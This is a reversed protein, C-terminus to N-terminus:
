QLDLLRPPRLAQQLRAQARQAVIGIRCLHPFAQSQQGHLLLSALLLVGVGHM